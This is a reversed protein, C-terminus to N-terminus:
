HSVVALGAGFLNFALHRGSGFTGGEEVVSVYSAATSGERLHGKTSFRVRGGGMANSLSGGVSGLWGGSRGRFQFFCRGRVRLGLQAAKIAAVYGGPGVRVWGLGSFGTLLRGLRTCATGSPLRLAM